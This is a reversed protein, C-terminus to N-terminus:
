AMELQPLPWRVGDRSGRQRGGARAEKGRGRPARTVLEGAENIVQTCLKYGDPLGLEKRATQCLFHWYQPYQKELRRLSNRGWGLQDSIYKKSFGQETWFAAKRM